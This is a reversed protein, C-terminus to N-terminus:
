DTSSLATQNGSVRKEENESQQMQRDQEQLKQEMKTLLQQYYRIQEEGRQQQEREYEDLPGQRELEEYHQQLRKYRALSNEASTMLEQDKAREYEQLLGLKAAQQRKKEEEKLYRKIWGKSGPMLRRKREYSIAAIAFIFVPITLGVLLIWLVVQGFSRLLSPLWSGFDFRPLVYNNGRLWLLGMKFVFLIFTSSVTFGLFTRNKKKM